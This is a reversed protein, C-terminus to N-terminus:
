FDGDGIHVGPPTHLAVLQPQPNAHRDHPKGLLLNFGGSATYYEADPFHQRVDAMLGAIEKGLKKWRREINPMAARLLDGAEEGDEIRQLVESEDM